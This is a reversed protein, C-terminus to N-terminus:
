PGQRTTKLRKSVPHTSRQEWELTKVGSPDITAGMLHNASNNELTKVGSPDITAGM